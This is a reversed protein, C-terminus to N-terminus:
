ENNILYGIQWPVTLEFAHINTVGDSSTGGGLYYRMGDPSMFGNFGNHQFGISIINVSTVLQRSNVDYPITLEYQEIIPSQYNRGILITGDDNMVAARLQWINSSNSILVATSVDWAQSLFYTRITASGDNILMKTGDSKFCISRVIVSTNYSNVVNSLSSLVGNVGFDYRKVVNNDVIFLMSEDPKVWLAQRGWNYFSAASNFTAGSIQWNNINLTNAKYNVWGSIQVASNSSIAYLRDQTVAFGTMSKSVTLKDGNYILQPILSNIKNLLLKRRM